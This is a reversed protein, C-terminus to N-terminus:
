WFCPLNCCLFMFSLLGMSAGCLDVCFRRSNCFIAESDQDHVFHNMQQTLKFSQERKQKKTFPLQQLVVEETCCIDKKLFVKLIIESLISMVLRPLHLSSVSCSPCFGPQIKLSLPCCHVTPLWATVLPMGWPSMNLGFSNLVTM